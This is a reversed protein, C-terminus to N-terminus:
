SKLLTEGSLYILTHHVLSTVALILGLTHEGAAYWAFAALGSIILEQTLRLIESIPGCQRFDVTGWFGFLLAPIVVALLLKMGPSQGAFYGWSGAAIIIGLEMLTRLLVNLWKLKELMVYDM